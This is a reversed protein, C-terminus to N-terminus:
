EQQTDRKRKSLDIRQLVYHSALYCLIVTLPWVIALKLVPSLLISAFALTVLVLIPPHILYMHFASASLNQLLTGQRNFRARFIPILVFIMAMCIITEALVFLFAALTPGGLVVSFDSDLGLFLFGYLYFLVLTAAMTISWDRVHRKSMQEFWDYRLAIVGISFMMIYQPLFAVPIGLPNRDIPFVLRILFAICGLGIATLLLYLYGPIPLQEPILRQLSDIKTIQRWLTYGATFVLLVWLFWMPGLFTIYDLFAELSEFNSLYYDLFSGQVAPDGCCPQIGITSLLYVMIPSILVIYLLLPIGLRRLREKW